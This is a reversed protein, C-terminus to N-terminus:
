TGLIGITVFGVFVSLLSSLLPWYWAFKAEGQNIVWWGYCAIFLHVLFYAAVFLWVITGWIELFSTLSRSLYATTAMVLSFSLAWTAGGRAGELTGSQVLLRRRSRHSEAEGDWKRKENERGSLISLLSLM